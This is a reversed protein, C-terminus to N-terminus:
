EPEAILYIRVITIISAKNYIESSHDKGCIKLNHKCWLSLRLSLNIAIELELFEKGLKQYNHLIRCVCKNFLDDIKIWNYVSNKNM